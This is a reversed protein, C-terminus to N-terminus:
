ETMMEAEEVQSVTPSPVRSLLSATEKDHHLLYSLYCLRQKRALRKEDSPPSSSSSTPGPPSSASRAALEEALISDFQKQNIREKELFSRAVSVRLPRRVFSVARLCRLNEVERAKQVRLDGSLSAFKPDKLNAPDYPDFDLCPSGGRGNAHMATTFELTYDNHLLFSVVRSTPYQIDLIRSNNLGIAQLSQRLEKLPRRVSTSYYVFQYGPPIGTNPGFLRAITAAARRPPPLLTKKKPKKSCVNTAAVSAYSATSKGVVAAGSSPLPLTVAKATIKAKKPALLSAVQAELARRASESEALAKQLRFIESYADELRSLRQNVEQMFPQLASQDVIGTMKTTTPATAPSFDLSFAPPTQLKTPKLHSYSTSTKKLSFLDAQFLPPSLSSFQRKVGLSFFEAHKQPPSSPESLTQVQDSSIINRDQKTINECHLDYLYECNNYL